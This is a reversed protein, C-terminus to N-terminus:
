DIQGFWEIKREGGTSISAVNWFFPGLNAMVGVPNDKEIRSLFTTLLVVFTM